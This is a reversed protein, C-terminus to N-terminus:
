KQKRLFKLYEVGREITWFFTVFDPHTEPLKPDIITMVGPSIHQDRFGQELAYRDYIKYGAVLWSHCIRGTEPDKVVGHGSIHKHGAVNIHDRTGFLTAKMPGHAPNYQSHGKFDHKANVRCKNGNPFHLELRVESSMYKASQGRQIWKIPDKDGSFLDHNGGIIYLWEVGSLFWEALQWMQNESTSQQAWLRTLRGVWNNTTDGVNAGFLAPTNRIIKSHNELAEIDTGDDDIHPDGFHWIGIPGDMNVKVSILKRAIEFSRKRNFQKKRHAILEDVPLETDPLAAHEFSKGPTIGRLKAKLIYNKITSRPIGSELVMEKPMTNGYKHYLNMALLLTEDPTRKNPM